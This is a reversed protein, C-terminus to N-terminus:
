QAFEVQSSSKQSEIAKFPREVCWHRDSCRRVEVDLLGVRSCLTKVEEVTLAAHLSDAFIRRQYASCGVAYTDVLARLEAESSPRHLDKVFIAAEPRAVRRLEAFFTEPDPIHHALSNSLVVDFSATPLGSAKADVCAVEIRDSLGARAVNARAMKLMHEGLDIALVRVGPARQALLIAIDAPGTGVDLVAGRRPALELVRAVFEENVATNDFAAYEDADEASDMVEPELVRSLM